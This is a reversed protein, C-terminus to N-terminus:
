PCRIAEATLTPWSPASVGLYVTENKFSAVSRDLGIALRRAAQMLAITEEESECACHVAVDARLLQVDGVSVKWQNQRTSKFGSRALVETVLDRVALRMDHIGLLNQGTLFKPVSAEILLHKNSAPSWINAFVGLFRSTVYYKNGNRRINPNDALAALGEHQVPIRVKVTDILSSDFPRLYRLRTATKDKKSM